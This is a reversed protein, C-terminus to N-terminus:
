AFARDASLGEPRSDNDAIYGGLEMSYSLSKWPLSRSHHYIGFRSSVRLMVCTICGSASEISIDQIVGIKELASDYVFTGLVSCASVLNQATAAPSRSQLDVVSRSYRMQM